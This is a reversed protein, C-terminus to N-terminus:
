QAKLLKDREDILLSIKEYDVNQERVMFLAMLPTICCTKNCLTVLKKAKKYPINPDAECFIREAEMVTKNACECIIKQEINKM